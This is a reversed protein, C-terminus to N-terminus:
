GRSSPSRIYLAVNGSSRPVRSSSIRPAPEVLVLEHHGRRLVRVDAEVVAALHQVEARVIVEPERVMRLDDGGRVLGELRVAVPHRAHAEDAARLVQMALELLADRSNRPVSSVIRNEEHKSAFPPRNSASRDSASATIQSASFWAEIM